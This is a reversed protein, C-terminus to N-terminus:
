LEDFKPLKKFSGRAAKEALADMQPDKALRRADPELVALLQDRPRQRRVIFTDEDLQQITVPSHAPLAAPMVVRRRDDTKTAEVIPLEWLISAFDLGMERVKLARPRPKVAVIRITPKIELKGNEEEYTLKTKLDSHSDEPM